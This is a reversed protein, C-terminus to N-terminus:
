SCAQSTNVTDPSQGTGSYTFVGQFHWPSASCRAQLYSGHKVTTTFDKLPLPQTDINPLAANAERVIEVNEQSM